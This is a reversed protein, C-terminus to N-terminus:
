LDLTYEIFGHLMVADAMDLPSSVTRDGSLSAIKYGHEFLMMLNRTSFRGFDCKNLIVTRVQPCVRLVERLTHHNIEAPLVLFPKLSPYSRHHQAYYNAFSMQYDWALEIIQRNGQCLEANDQTYKRYFPFNFMKAHFRLRDAEFLKEPTVHLVSPKQTFQTGFRHMLKACITSKGSGPTGLFVLKGSDEFLSDVHPIRLAAVLTKTFFSRTMSGDFETISFEKKIFTPSLGFNLLDGFVFTNQDNRGTPLTINASKDKRKQRQGIPSLEPEIVAASAVVQETKTFTEAVSSRISGEIPKEPIKQTHNENRFINETFLDKQGSIEDLRCAADDLIPLPDPANVYAASGLSKMPNEPTFQELKQKALALSKRPNMPNNRQRQTPEEKSATIEVFNGVNNIEIIFADPGLANQVKELATTADAARFILNNAM